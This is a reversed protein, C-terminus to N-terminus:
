AADEGPRAGATVVPARQALHWAAARRIGERLPVRPEFGLENRARSIDHRTDTGIFVVGFRTVPPRRRARTLLALREAAYGATFLLARPVHVRPPRAGVEGAIATMLELQTLPQDNTINFARGDAGPQDLALLLADVVDSVYVFPVHNRGSGVIIGAGSILRDAMAGFHLADGPGFIQDPRIIVAPLGQEHIMRQVAVDGEAKSVPYPDSFPTLPAEESILRGRGVGYVSSSSMHVLRRAGAALAARCVNETGMVNVERYDALPRWVDMMAALHLVGDVARMPAILTQPQRVDGRFVAVGRGELESADEKPLALVRVSDGRRQLATVLHRGIFGNGGTILVEM